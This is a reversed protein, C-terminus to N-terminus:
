LCFIEEILGSFLWCIWKKIVSHSMLRLGTCNTSTCLEPLPKARLGGTWAAGHYRLQVATFCGWCRNIEALPCILWVVSLEYCCQQNISRTNLTVCVSIVTVALADPKILVHPIHASVKLCLTKMMTLIVLMLLPFCMEGWMQIVDTIIQM